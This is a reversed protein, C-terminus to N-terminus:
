DEFYQAEVRALCKPCVGQMLVTTSTFYYFIVEIEFSPQGAEGSVLVLSEYEKEMCEFCMLSELVDHAALLLQGLATICEVFAVSAYEMQLVTLLVQEHLYSIYDLNKGRWPKEAVRRYWEQYVRLVKAAIWWKAWLYQLIRHNLGGQFCVRLLYNGGFTEAVCPMLMGFVPKSKRGQVNSKIFQRVAHDIRMTFQLEPNLIPNQMERNFECKMFHCKQIWLNVNQMRSQMKTNRIRFSFKSVSLKDQRLENAYYFNYVFPSM